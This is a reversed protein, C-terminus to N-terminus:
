AMDFYAIEHSQDFIQKNKKLEGTTSVVCKEGYLFPLFVLSPPLVGRTKITINYCSVATAIIQSSPFEKSM